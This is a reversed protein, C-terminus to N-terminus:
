KKKVDLLEVEFSLTANPPIVPPFGRAGYGLSPPVTLKRKGGVKMGAIGQDWGKIVQHAGLQFDFPKNHKRSSDFEKGDTLTGVYHVTVTDGAKAEAGKGVVLDKVGLPEDPAAPATEAAKAQPEAPKASASPQASASGQAAPAQIAEEKPPETLKSCGSAAVILV